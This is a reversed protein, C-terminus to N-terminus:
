NMALLVAQLFAAEFANAPKQTLSLPANQFAEINQAYVNLREQLERIAASQEDLQGTAAMRIIGSLFDQAIRSKPVNSPFKPGIVLVNERNFPVTLVRGLQEQVEEPLDPPPTKILGSTVYGMSMGPKNSSIVSFNDLTKGAAIPAQDDFYYWSLLVGTIGPTGLANGVASISSRMAAGRWRAPVTLDGDPESPMVLDWSMIPKKAKESNTIRYAYKFKGQERTVAFTITPQSGRNTPIRYTKISGPNAGFEPTGLNEPYRIVYEENNLDYFVYRDSLEPPVVGNSPWFPVPSIRITRQPEQNVAEGRQLPVAQVVLLNLLTGGVLITSIRNM